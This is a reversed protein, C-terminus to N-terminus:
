LIYVIHKLDYKINDIRKQEQKQISKTKRLLFGSCWYITVLLVFFDIVTM